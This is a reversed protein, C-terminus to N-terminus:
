ADAVGGEPLSSGDPPRCWRAAAEYAQTRGIGIGTAWRVFPRFEAPVKEGLAEALIIRMDAPKLGPAALIDRAAQETRASAAPDAGSRPHTGYGGLCAPMIGLALLASRCATPDCRCKRCACTWIHRYHSRTPQSVRFGGHGCVPCKAEWDDGDREAGALRPAIERARCLSAGDPCAM